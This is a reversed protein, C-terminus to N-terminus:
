ELGPALKAIASIMVPSTQTSFLKSSAGIAFWGGIELTRLNVSVNSPSICSTKFGLGAQSNNGHWTPHTLSQVLIRAPLLLSANSITCDIERVHTTCM